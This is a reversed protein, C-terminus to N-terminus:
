DQWVAPVPRKDVIGVGDGVCDHREQAPLQPCASGSRVAPLSSVPLGRGAAKVSPPFNLASRMAEGPDAEAQQPRRLDVRLRWDCHDFAAM